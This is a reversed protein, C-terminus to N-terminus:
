SRTRSLVVVGGSARASAMTSRALAVKESAYGPVSRGSGPSRARARAAALGRAARARGEPGLGVLLGVVAARPARRRRRPRRRRHHLPRARLLPVRRRRRLGRPP